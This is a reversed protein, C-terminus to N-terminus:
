FSHSPNNMLTVPPDRGSFTMIPFRYLGGRWLSLLSVILCNQWSSAGIIEFTEFLLEWTIIVPSNLMSKSWIFSRDSYWFYKSKNTVYPNKGFIVTGVRRQLGLEERIYLINQLSLSRLCCKDEQTTLDQIDSLKEYRDIKSMNIFVLCTGFNTCILRVSPFIKEPM